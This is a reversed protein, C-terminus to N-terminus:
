KKNSKMLKERFKKRLLKNLKERYKKRLLENLKNKYDQKKNNEPYIIKWQRTKNDEKKEIIEQKILKSKEEKEKKLLFEKDYDIFIEKSNIKQFKWDKKEFFDYQVKLRNIKLNLDIENNEIKDKEKKNDELTLFKEWWLNKCNEEVKKSIIKDEEFIWPIISMKIESACQIELNNLTIKDDPNRQKFKFYKEFWTNKIDTQKIFNNQFIYLVDIINLKFTNEDFKKNFFEDINLKFEDLKKLEWSYNWLIYNNIKDKNKLIKECINKEWKCSLDYKDLYVKVQYNYKNIDNNKIEEKLDNVLNLEKESKNFKISVENNWVKEVEINKHNKFYYYWFWGIVFILIPVMIIVINKKFLDLYYEFM